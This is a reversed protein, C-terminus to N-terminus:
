HSCGIAMSAALQIMIATKRDLINNRSASAFFDTYTKEIKKPLMMGEKIFKL